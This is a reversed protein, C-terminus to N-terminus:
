RNERQTGRVNRLPIPASFFLRLKACTLLVRIVAFDVNQLSLFSPSLNNISVRLYFLFMISFQGALLIEMRSIDQFTSARSARSLCVLPSSFESDPNQRPNITQPLLGSHGIAELKRPPDPPMSGRFHKSIFIRQSAIQHM